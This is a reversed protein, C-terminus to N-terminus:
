PYQKQGVYAGFEACARVTDVHGTHHAAAECLKVKWSRKVRPLTTDACNTCWSRLPPNDRMATCLADSEMAKLVRSLLVSEEARKSLAAFIRPLKCDPPEVFYGSIQALFGNLM